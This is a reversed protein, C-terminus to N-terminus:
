TGAGAGFETGQGAEGVGHAERSTKFHCLRKNNERVFVALRASLCFRTVSVSCVGVCVRVCLSVYACLNVHM